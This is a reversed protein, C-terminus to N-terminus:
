EVVEVQPVPIIFKGTFGQSRYKPIIHEAMNWSLLIAYDPQEQFLVDEHVVPIGVGPVVTGVKLPNVEGIYQVLDPTVGYVNLLTSAKM